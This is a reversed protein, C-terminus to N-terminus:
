RWRAIVCETPGELTTYLSSPGHRGKGGILASSTYHVRARLKMHLTATYLSSPGHRGKGGILASSTYHVRARLKMHLTAWLNPYMYRIYVFQLLIGLKLIKQDSNKLHLLTGNSIHAELRGFVILSTWM